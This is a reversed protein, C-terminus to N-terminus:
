VQHPYLHSSSVGPQMHERDYETLIAALLVSVPDSGEHDDKTLIFAFIVIKQILSHCGFLQGWHMGHDPHFSLSRQLDSQLLLKM